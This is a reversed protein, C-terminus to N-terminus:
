FQMRCYGLWELSQGDRYLGEPPYAYHVRASLSSSSAKRCSAFAIGHTPAQGSIESMPLYHMKCRSWSFVCMALVLMQRKKSDRLAELNFFSSEAM